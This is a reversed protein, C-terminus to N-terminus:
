PETLPDTLRWPATPDERTIVGASELQAVLEKAAAKKQGFRYAIGDQLLRNALVGDGIGEGSRVWEVVDEFAPQYGGSPEQRTPPDEVDEEPESDFNAGEPSSGPPTELTAGWADLLEDTSTLTMLSCPREALAVCHGSSFAAQTTLTATVESPALALLKGLVVAARSMALDGSPEVGWCVTTSPENETSLRSVRYVHRTSDPEWPFVTLVLDTLAEQARPSVKCDLCFPCHDEGDASLGTGNCSPCDAWEPEILAETAASDKTLDRASYDRDAVGDLLPHPNKKPQWPLDALHSQTILEDAQEKKKCAEETYLALLEGRAAILEDSVALPLEVEQLIYATVQCMRRISPEQTKNM